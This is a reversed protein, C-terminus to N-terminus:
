ECGVSFTVAPVGATNGGLTLNFRDQTQASQQPVSLTISGGAPGTAQSLTIAGEGALVVQTGTVGTQGATNGGTSVGLSFSGAGGGGAVSGMYLKSSASQWIPVDGQSVPSGDTREWAVDKLLRFKNIIGVAPM